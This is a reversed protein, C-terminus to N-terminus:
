ARAHQVQEWSITELVTVVAVKGLPREQHSCNFRFPTQNPLDAKHVAAKRFESSKEYSEHRRGSTRIPPVHPNPKNGPTHTHSKDYAVARVGLNALADRIDLSNTHGLGGDPTDQISLQNRIEGIDPGLGKDVRLLM